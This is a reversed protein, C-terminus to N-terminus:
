AAIRSAKARKLPLAEAREALLARELSTEGAERAAAILTLDLLDRQAHSGGFRAAKNRVERLLDLARAHEGRGFARIALAVPLGVDATFTANDGPGEAAAKMAALTAEAEAERGASVYAMMAHADDFAYQGRPQTAYVDALANWRGGV